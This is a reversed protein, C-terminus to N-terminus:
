EIHLEAAEKRNSVPKDMTNEPKVDHLPVGTAFVNKDLILYSM